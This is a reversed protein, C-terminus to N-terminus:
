APVATAPKGPETGARWGLWGALAGLAMGLTATVALPIQAYAGLLPGFQPAFPVNWMVVGQFTTFCAALLWPAGHKRNLAYLVLAFAAAMLDSILITDQIEQVGPSGIFNLWPTYEPMVRSYPSEFLIIPSALMYGAHLRINRRHKLALYFLTCYAAIAIGTGIAFSPGNQVASPSSAAAYKRAAVDMIMVFGLMLFPFLWLSAQGLQRHLPNQRRQITLHQVILLSLWGISTIAHVHFALPVTGIPAWYSQWFGVLVTLLVFGVFYHARRYPM